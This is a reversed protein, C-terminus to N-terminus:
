CCTHRTAANAPNANYNFAFGASAPIPSQLVIPFMQALPFVCQGYRNSHTYWHIKAAMIINILYIPVTCKDENILM